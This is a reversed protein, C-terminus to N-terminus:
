PLPVTGMLSRNLILSRTLSHILSLVSLSAPLSYILSLTPSVGSCEALLRLCKAASLQMPGQQKSIVDHLVACMTNGGGALKTRALTERQEEGECLAL